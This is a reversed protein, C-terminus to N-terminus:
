DRQGTQELDLTSSWGMEEMEEEGAGGRHDLEDDDKDQAVAKM